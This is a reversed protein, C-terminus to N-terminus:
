ISICSFQEKSESFMESYERSEDNKLALSVDNPNDAQLMQRVVCLGKRAINYAGNADADKPLAAKEDSAFTRSDYFNGDGDAVPSVIFDDDLLSSGTKSNRMQLTLSLRYLMGEFFSKDDKELIQAM